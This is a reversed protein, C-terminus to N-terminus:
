SLSVKAFVKILPFVNFIRERVSNVKTAFLAIYQCSPIDPYKITLKLKDGSIM